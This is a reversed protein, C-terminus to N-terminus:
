DKRRRAAQAKRKARIGIQEERQITLLQALERRVIRVKATNDLQKLSHQFKLNAHEERVDKIKTDLDAISLERIEKTRM